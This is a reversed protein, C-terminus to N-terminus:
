SNVQNSAIFTNKNIVFYKFVTASRFPCKVSGVNKMQKGLLVLGRGLVSALVKEIHWPLSLRFLSFGEFCLQGRLYGGAPLTTTLMGPELEPGRDPAPPQKTSTFQETSLNPSSILLSSFLDKGKSSEYDQQSWPFSSFIGSTVAWRLLLATVQQREGCPSLQIARGIFNHTFVARGAAFPALLLQPQQQSVEWGRLM